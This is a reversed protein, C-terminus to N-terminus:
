YNYINPAPMGMLRDTGTSPTFRPCKTRTEAGKSEKEVESFDFDKKTLLDYIAKAYSPKIKYQQALYLVKIKKESVHDMMAATNSHLHDRQQPTMVNEYLNRPQDYDSLKGEHYYHSKRSMVNDSVAYPAEAADPRFKTLPTFSNPAYDPNGGNNADVRMTGDFNLSSFSGAM